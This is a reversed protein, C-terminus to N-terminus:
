HFAKNALITQRCGSIPQPFSRGWDKEIYGRGESFDIKENNIEILGNVTHDMSVIGHYCEM